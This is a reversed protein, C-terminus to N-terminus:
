TGTTSEFLVYGRRYITTGDEITAQVLALFLGEATQSVPLEVTTSDNCVTPTGFQLGTAGLLQVQVDDVAHGGGPVSLDMFLSGVFGDVEEITNVAAM